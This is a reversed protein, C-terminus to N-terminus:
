WKEQQGQRLPCCIGVFQFLDQQQLRRHRSAGKWNHHGPEVVLVNLRSPNHDYTCGHDAQQRNWNPHRDGLLEKSEPLDRNRHSKLVSVRSYVDVAELFDAIM